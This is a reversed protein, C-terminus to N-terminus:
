KDTKYRNIHSQYSDSFYTGLVENLNEKVSKALLPHKEKYIKWCQSNSNLGKFMQSKNNVQAEIGEPALQALVGDLTGQLGSMFAMQHLQIDQMAEDYSNGVSMYGKKKKVLLMELTDVPDISFKIPNNSKPQILTASMRSEQKFATRSALLSMLGQTTSLLITAIDEAFTDQDISAKFEKSLGLKEYLSSFFDDNTNKSNAEASVSQKVNDPTPPSTEQPMARVIPKEEFIPSNYEPIPEPASQPLDPQVQVNTEPSVENVIPPVPDESKIPTEFDSVSSMSDFMEWDDPILADDSKINPTIANNESIVDFPSSPESTNFPNSQENVNSFQNESPSNIPASLIDGLGLDSEPKPTDLIDPVPTSEPMQFPSQQGQFPDQAPEQKPATAANSDMVLGLLDGNNTQTQFPNVGVDDLNIEEVKVVHKGIVLTDSAQLMHENGHGLPTGASNIIVGNSSVDTLVFQQNRFTIVLHKKSVFRDSDILTWDCDDSRGISGGVGTFNYNDNQGTESGSVIKLKLYPM